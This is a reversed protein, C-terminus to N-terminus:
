SAHCTMMDDRSMLVVLMSGRPWVQFLGERGRLDPDQM